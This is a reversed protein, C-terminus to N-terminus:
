RGEWDLEVGRQFQRRGVGGGLVACVLVLQNQRRGFRDDCVQFTGGADRADGLKCGPSPNALSCRNQPLLFTNFHYLPSPHQCLNKHFNRVDSYLLTCIIKILHNFHLQTRHLASM